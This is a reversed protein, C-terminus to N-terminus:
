HQSFKQNCKFLSGSCLKSENTFVTPSLALSRLNNFSNWSCAILSLIVKEHVLSGEFNFNYSRPASKDRSFAICIRERLSVERRSNCSDFEAVISATLDLPHPLQLSSCGGPLFTRDLLRVCAKTQFAPFSPVASNNATTRLRFLNILYGM